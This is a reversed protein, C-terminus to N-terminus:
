LAHKINGIGKAFLAQRKEINEDITVHDDLVACHELVIAPDMEVVTADEVFENINGTLFHRFKRYSQVLPPIIVRAAGANGRWKITENHQFLKVQRYFGTKSKRLKSNTNM